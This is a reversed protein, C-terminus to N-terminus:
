CTGAQRFRTTATTTTTTEHNCSPHSGVLISWARRTLLGGAQTLTEGQRFLVRAWDTFLSDPFKSARGLGIEKRLPLLEGPRLSAGANRSRQNKTAHVGVDSTSHYYLCNPRPVIVLAVLVVYVCLAVWATPQHYIGCRACDLSRSGLLSGVGASGIRFDGLLRRLNTKSAM